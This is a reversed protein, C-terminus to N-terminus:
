RGCQHTVDTTKCTRSNRFLYFFGDEAGLLLDPVGNGDFDSVTPATTHGALRRSGFVRASAAFRWKGDHEGLNRFLVASADNLILDTWGDGDWDCFAIKRRGSAGGGKVSLRLPRGDSGLFARRPMKLALCGCQVTREFYALYGEQDLMVLDVLGDRNWDIMSPTTRWQTMLAKGSPKRWGWALAPPEGEWEVEVSRACELDLAGKRGPNRFWIVDGWISNAMVDLFGDGDWDAVSVVTYGWKAEGPGQISGNVGAQIRITEDGATLLVPEAWSPVAVKPGSLNEIFAVYGASSGAIIDQDGDGDWDCVHPTALAGFKLEDPEQLFYRPEDFVPMRGTVCGTNRIFAVRGDEDGCIIDDKGDGDWDFATPTIMQLDMSLRQGDKKRLKRGVAYRPAVRTGINEFYTFDDIFSGCIVDLDGDGDWDRFMPMPNGYVELPSGDALRLLKAPAYTSSADKGELCRCVYVLGHIPENTWCGQADYANDWGYGRWDGVGVVVDERGDGDYDVLRWVNGRVNNSHVNSPLGKLPVGTACIDQLPNWNALGPRMAVPRDRLYTLDINFFGPGLRRAKRFTPMPNRTGRPTPNEFLYTGNHPVDPCSVVLDFDGDGDYDITMPWAWLGVGLFPKAASNAYPLRMFDAALPEKQSPMALECWVLQAKTGQPSSISIENAGARVASSPFRWRWVDKALNSYLDLRSPREALTEAMEGNLMVRARELGSDPIDAAAVLFVARDYRGPVAHLVLKRPADLAVPLQRPRLKADRHALDYYSMPYRRELGDLRNAALSQSYIEDRAAKDLYPINFFYFGDPNDQIRCWARRLPARVSDLVIRKAFPTCNACIDMGPLVTVLPNAKRILMQWRDIRTEYDPTFYVNCPILIDVLGERAWTEVDFGLCLANVPDSPVRAAVRVVHGRRRSAENVRRRVGRMVDTLVGAQEREKGPTLNHPSRLWDIEIGDSDWRDLIEDVMAYAHARVPEHIYNFAHFDWWPKKEPRVIHWEPHEHWFTENRFYNTTSCYHVDNMRMSIWPSVGKARCRDIWVGYIDLGRDHALKANLCWLNNSAPKYGLDSGSLGKWIPEWAKSDFSARQGCVCMFFHTVKGGDVVSDIYRECAERTIGSGDRGATLYYRDNDENIVRWPKPPVGGPPLAPRAWAGLALCAVTLSLFKDGWRNM